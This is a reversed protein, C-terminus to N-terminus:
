LEEAIQKMTKIELQGKKRMRHAYEIIAEFEEMLVEKNDVLDTPHTWLHFIKKEKIATDIGLKAKKYRIMKSLYRRLGRASVFYMSIPIACLRGIKYPRAIPPAIPIFLEILKLVRDITSDGLFSYWQREKDRFATFAYKELIDLHGVLNRPFIFSSLKINYKKALLVCARIESEACARSCGPHGFLVHSFSHSGIEQKHNKIIKKVIDLGYWGPDKKLNSGPDPEFWDNKVWPYKPRIIDMHKKKNIPECKELFLHGTVGWTASISYKEFLYLLRSIIKREREARKIFPQYNLDHRGWLLEIDLSLCFIGKNM